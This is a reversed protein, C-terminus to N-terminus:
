REELALHDHRRLAELLRPDNCVWTRRLTSNDLRPTRHRLFLRGGCRSVIALVLDPPLDDTPICRAEVLPLVAPFDIRDLLAETHAAIAELAHGREWPIGLRRCLVTPQHGWRYLLAEPFTFGYCRRAFRNPAIVVRSSPPQSMNHLLGPTPEPRTSASM